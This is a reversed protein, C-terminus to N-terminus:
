SRARYNPPVFGDCVTNIISGFNFSKFKDNEIFLNYDKFVLNLLM